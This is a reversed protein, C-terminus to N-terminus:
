QLCPFKSRYLFELYFGAGPFVGGVGKLWHVLFADEEGM